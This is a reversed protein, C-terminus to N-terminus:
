RKAGDRATLTGCNPNTNDKHTTAERRPATNEIRTKTVHQQRHRTPGRSRHPSTARSEDRSQEHERMEQCSKGLLIHQLTAQTFQRNEAGPKDLKVAAAAGHRVAQLAQFASHMMHHTHYPLVFPPTHVNLCDGLADFLGTGRGWLRADFRGATLDHM